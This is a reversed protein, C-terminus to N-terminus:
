AVRPHGEIGREPERWGKRVTRAAHTERVGSGVLQPPKIAKRRRPERHKKKRTIIKEKEPSLLYM